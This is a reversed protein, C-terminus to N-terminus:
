KEEPLAALADTLIKRARQVIECKADDANTATLISMNQDIPVIKGRWILERLDVLLLFTTDLLYARWMETEIGPVREWKMKAMDEEGEDPGDDDYHVPCAM